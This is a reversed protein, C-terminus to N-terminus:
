ALIKLLMTKFQDKEQSTLRDLRESHYHIVKETILGKFKEGQETLSIMKIRRDNPDEQRTIYDLAFLRDIIATVNSPECNLLNAMTKMSMPKGPELFCLAYVQPATLDAAEALKMFGKKVRLSAAMFLWNLNDQLTDKEM